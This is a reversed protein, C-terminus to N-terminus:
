PFPRCLIQSVAGAVRQGLYRTFAPSANLCPITRVACSSSMMRLLEGARHITENGDAFYGAAFLAVNAVGSRRLQGAVEDFSPKTWEGGVDHNLYASMVRGWPHTADREIAATLQEAFHATEQHGTRFRPPEGKSDSVLTGHFLLLLVNAESRPLGQSASGAAIHGACLGYLLPDCWFRSVVKVRGLDDATLKGALYRCLQGCTLENDVPSMSVLIRADCLSTADIVEEVAPDSASFASLVDFSVGSNRSCADLYRQLLEAQQRTIRNHPSGTAAPRLKKKLTSFLSIGTQLVPPVAMVTSAHQLTRRSVRYNEMFGTGQAEGHATLIVAIKKPNAM